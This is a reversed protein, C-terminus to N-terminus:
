CDGYGIGRINYITYKFSVQATFYELDQQTADFDLTSLSYPFMNEFYVKFKTNMQSDLIGLTGDSYLNLQSKEPQKFDSEEKQFNYIESLSEPFGLGRMWHQIETYNELNEDVLFRLTLDEFDMKDGPLPIDKLYTPQEAVGLSISPINVMNGFYSVKPARQIQFHFGTPALFNRNEIQGPIARRVAM